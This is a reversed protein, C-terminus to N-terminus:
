KTKAPKEGAAKEEKAAGGDATVKEWQSGPYALLREAHDPAFKQVKDSDKARLTVTAM